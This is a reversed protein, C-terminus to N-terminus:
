ALQELRLNFRQSARYEEWLNPAHSTIILQGQLANVVRELQDILARQWSVHIHLDPEDILVVGGRALWRSVMFSLIVIQREGASLQDLYHGSGDGNLPKVVLRLNNDFDTLQKGNQRLFGNIQELTRSFWEPDRIKLNRLQQELPAETSNNIGRVVFWSYLAEPQISGSGPPALIDRGEAELFVLNPLQDDPKGAGLRLREMQAHLPEQWPGASLEIKWPNKFGYIRSPSPYPFYSGTYVDHPLGQVLTNHRAQDRASYLWLPRDLLERIEMAVLGFRDTYPLPGEIFGENPAMLVPFSAWLSAIARLLTTKGSGNPGTLLVNRLPESRWDDFFTLDFDSLGAAGQLIVRHVYM